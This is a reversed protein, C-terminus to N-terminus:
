YRWRRAHSIAKAQAVAFRVGRAEEKAEKEALARARAADFRSMASAVQAELSSPSPIFHTALRTGIM